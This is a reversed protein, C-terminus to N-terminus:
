ALALFAANCSIGCRARLVPIPRTRVRAPASRSIARSITLSQDTFRVPRRTALATAGCYHLTWRKMRNVDGNLKVHSVPRPGKECM